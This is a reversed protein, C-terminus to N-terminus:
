SDRPSPSTYLLCTDTVVGATRTRLIYHADPPANVDDYSDFSTVTAIWSEDRLVNASTGLYGSFQLTTVNGDVLGDCMPAPPEPEREITCNTDTIDGGPRTRLVYSAGVSANTVDYSDFGTVTALWWGDRLLNASTGLDGSFNLALDNGIFSGECMPASPEPVPEIVCNTDTIVGRPRTRLVYSAGASANTDNYSDFGTVTALWWGDRLLNASTGLDGSFALLLDNGVFSGECAVVEVASTLNSEIPVPEVEARDRICMESGVLSRLM